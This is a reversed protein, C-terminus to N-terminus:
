LGAGGGGGGGGPRHGAGPVPGRSCQPRHGQCLSLSLLSLAHKSASLHSPHGVLPAPWTSAPKKRSRARGSPHVAWIKASFLSRVLLGLVARNSAVHARFGQTRWARSTEQQRQKREGPAVSMGTMCELGERWQEPQQPSGEGRAGMCLCRLAEPWGVEFMAAKGRLLLPVTRGM